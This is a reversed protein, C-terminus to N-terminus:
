APAAVREGQPTPEVVDFVLQGRDEDVRVRDGESLRGEIVMLALPDVIQRQIVRKLPRAGYAPDYGERVLLDTAQRTVSLTIDQASLLDRVNELQIDVIQVLHERELRHFIVIEDIRNLFEPRFRERLAQLVRERIMAPDDVDTIYQSGVNSTMIIVTNRFDVTRGHGDTLRGEDFVQLFLNFVEPHAKEIEDFLVVSYPRRRV